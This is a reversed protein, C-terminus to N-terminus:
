EVHYSGVNSDLLNVVVLYLNKGARVSTLAKAGKTPLYQVPVVGLRHSATEWQYIDSKINTRGANDIHNAIVLYHTDPALTIFTM